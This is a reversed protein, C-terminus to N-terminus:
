GTGAWRWGRQQRSMALRGSDFGSTWRGAPTRSEGTPHRTAAQPPARGWGKSGSVSPVRQPTGGSRSLAGAARCGAGWLGGGGRGQVRATDASAHSLWRWLVAGCGPAPPGAAITAGVTPGGAPVGGAAPHEGAPNEGGKGAKDTSCCGSGSSSRSGCGLTAGTAV